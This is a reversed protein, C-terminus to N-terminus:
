GRVVVNGVASGLDLLVHRIGIKGMVLVQGAAWRASVGTMVSVHSAEFFREVRHVNNTGM